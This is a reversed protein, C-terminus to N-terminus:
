FPLHDPALSSELENVLEEVSKIALEVTDKNIIHEDGEKSKGNRHVLDHRVNICKIVDAINPFIIEFTELYMKRVIALNHFITELMIMKATSEIEDYKNYIQDLTFKREKFTPHTSVFKQILNKDGTVKTIFTDSLYTEMITISSIYLQRKLIVDLMPNALVLKNLSRLNTIEKKFNEHLKSADSIASLEYQFPQANIILDPHLQVKWGDIKPIRLLFEKPVDQDFYITFSTTIGDNSVNEVIEFNYKALEYYDINWFEALVDTIYDNQREIMLDSFYGM